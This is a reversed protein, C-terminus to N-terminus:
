NHKRSLADFKPMQLPIDYGRREIQWSILAFCIILAIAYALGKDETPAVFFLRGLTIFFFVKLATEGMRVGSLSRSSQGLRWLKVVAAALVLVGLVGFKSLLLLPSDVKLDGATIGSVSPYIFGFGQGLLPSEYFADLTFRYARLREQFSGDRSIGDSAGVLDRLGTLRQMIRDGSPLAQVVLPLTLVIVGVTMGLVAIGQSLNLRGLKRSGIIGLLGLGFVLMSRSGSGIYIVPILVSLTWWLVKEPRGRSNVALVLAMSFVAIGLFSSSLMIRELGGITSGRRALWWIAWSASAVLGTIFTLVKFRTWSGNLAADVGILPAASILVYTFADQAVLTLPNGFFIGVLSGLVVLVGFLFSVTLAAGVLAAWEGRRARILRNISIVILVLVLSAYAFKATGLGTSGMTVLGVFIYLTLRGLPSRAMLIGSLALMLSAALVPALLVTFGVLVTAFIAAIFWRDGLQM